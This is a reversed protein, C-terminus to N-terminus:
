LIIKVILTSEKFDIMGINICNYTFGMYEKM